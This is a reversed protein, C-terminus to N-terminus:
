PSRAQSTNVDIQTCLHVRAGDIFRRRGYLIILDVYAVVDVEIARTLFSFQVMQIWGIFICYVAGLNIEEARDSDAWSSLDAM